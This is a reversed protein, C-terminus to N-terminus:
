QVSAIALTNAQQNNNGSSVNVGINGTANQLAHGGLGATYSSLITSGGNFAAVQTVPATASGMANKSAVVALALGNQQQNGVGAAMNIGINGSAGRGAQGNITATDTVGTDMVRNDMSVQNVGAGASAVDQSNSTDTLVSIATSNGQQNLGGAAINVGINGSANKLATSGLGAHNHMYNFFFFPVGQYAVTGGLGQNSNVLASSTLGYGESDTNTAHAVSLGNSQQNSLGSAINVGLNGTAGLLADGGLWAHNAMYGTLDANLVSMQTTFATTFAGDSQAKTALSMSNRQQNFIGSTINVNLNGSANELASGDMVASNAGTLGQLAFNFIAAQGTTMYASSAAVDDINSNSAIATTNAQQNQMGSAVNVGINGSAGRLSQGNVTSNNPANFGAVGQNLASVQDGQVYAGALALPSLCFTTIAIAIPTLRTKM